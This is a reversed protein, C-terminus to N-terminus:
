PVDVPQPSSSGASTDSRYDLRATWEGPVLRDLPVSLLACSTSGADALAEGEVSVDDQGARGLVLVCRGGDEVLGPVFGSAEVADSGPEVAAFSIVVELDSGPATEVPPDTAVAPPESDTTGADEVPDQGAPDAGSSPAPTAGPTPTASSAGAAPEGISDGTTDGTDSSCGTLLLAATVAWAWRPASTRRASM